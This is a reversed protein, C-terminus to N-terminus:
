RVDGCVLVGASNASGAVYRGRHRNGSSIQSLLSGDHVLRHEFQAARDVDWFGDGPRRALPVAMVTGPCRHKARQQDINAKAQLPLPVTGLLLSHGEEEDWEVNDVFYPMPVTAYRSLSGDDARRFLYVAACEPCTVVVTSMDPSVAIGNATAPVTAAVTCAQEAQEASTGGFTCRYIFNPALLGAWVAAEGGFLHTLVNAGM